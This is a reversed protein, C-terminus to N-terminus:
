IKSTWGLLMKLQKLFLDNIYSMKVEEDCLNFSFKIFNEYTVEPPEIESKSKRSHFKCEEHFSNEFCVDKQLIPTFTSVQLKNLLGKLKPHPFTEEPLTFGNDSDMQEFIDSILKESFEQLIKVDKHIIDLVADISSLIEDSLDKEDVSLKEYCEQEDQLDNSNCSAYSSPLIKNSINEQDGSFCMSKESDEHEENMDEQNIYFLVDKSPLIKNNMNKQDGKFCMSKESDVHEKSFDEQNSDCLAGSFCILKESYENEKRLHEQDIHFLADESSFIEDIKDKQDASFDTSTESVEEEKRLGSHTSFSSNESPLIENNSEEQDTSFVSIKGTSKQKPSFNKQSTRFLGQKPFSLESCLNKKGNKFLPLKKFMMQDEKLGIFEAPLKLKLQLLRCRSANRNINSFNKKHLLKTTEKFLMQQKRLGMIAVCFFNKRFKSNFGKVFISFNGKERLPLDNQPENRLLLFIYNVHSSKKTFDTFQIAFSEANKPLHETNGHDMQYVNLATEKDFGDDFNKRAVRSVTSRKIRSKENRIKKEYINACFASLIFFYVFSSECDESLDDPVSCFDWIKGRGLQFHLATSLM